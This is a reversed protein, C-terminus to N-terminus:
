VIQYHLKWGDFHKWFELGIFHDLNLHGPSCDLGGVLKNIEVSMYIDLFFVSGLYDMDEVVRLLIQNFIFSKEDIFFTDTIIPYTTPVIAQWLDNYIFPKILLM